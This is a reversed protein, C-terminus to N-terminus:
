SRAAGSGARRWERVLSLLVLGFCSVGIVIGLFLSYNFYYRGATPDYVTCFYKVRDILRDLSTMPLDRGLVASKLPEVILPPEFVAGYIQQSLRGASNILSVQALHDWSGARAYIAFGLARALEDLNDQDASLFSWNPLDVGHSRAFARMREPTDRVTDFGVTVVSFSDPGLARRAEVVAPYLSEILVPCVDVCSTYVLSILLPKGRFDALRAQTGDIRKLVVDPLMTGEAARSVEVARRATDPQEAVGPMPMVATLWALLLALSWKM